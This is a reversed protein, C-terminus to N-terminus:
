STAIVRWSGGIYMRLTSNATNWWVAGPTTSSPAAAQAYYERVIFGDGIKANNGLNIASSGNTLTNVRLTSM